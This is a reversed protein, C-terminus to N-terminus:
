ILIRAIRDIMGYIALIFYGGLFLIFNVRWFGKFIRFFDVEERYKYNVVSVSAAIVILLLFIVWLLSTGWITKIMYHVSLILFITTLDASMHISKRHSKTIKKVIAFVALYSLLPVTIFAAAASAIFQSM